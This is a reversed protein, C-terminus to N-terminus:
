KFDLVDETWGGPPLVIFRFLELWSVAGLDGGGLGSGAGGFADM